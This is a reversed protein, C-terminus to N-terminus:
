TRGCKLLFRELLDSLDSDVDLDINLEDESRNFVESVLEDYPAIEQEAAANQFESNWFDDIESESYVESPVIDAYEKNIDTNERFENVDDFKGM